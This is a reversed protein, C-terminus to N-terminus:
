QSLRLLGALALIALVSVLLLGGRRWWALAARM